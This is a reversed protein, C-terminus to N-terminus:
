GANFGISRLYSVNLWDSDSVLVFNTDSDLSANPAHTSNVITKAENPAYGSITFTQNTTLDCVCNIFNGNTDSRPKCPAEIYCANIENNWPRCGDIVANATSDVTFKIRCYRIGVFTWMGGMLGSTAKINFSCSSFNKVSGYDDVAYGMEGIIGRFKCDVFHYEDGGGVFNAFTSNPSYINSFTLDHIVSNASVRIFGDANTKYWNSIIKNNGDIISKLNIVPMDGDPYEDTININNHIRLYAGSESAKDYLEAMNTIIYPDQETGTGEIINDAM